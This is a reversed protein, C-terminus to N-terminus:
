EILQVGHLVLSREVSPKDIAAEQTFWKIFNLIDELLYHFAPILDHLLVRTVKRSLEIKVVWVRFKFNSIDFDFSVM